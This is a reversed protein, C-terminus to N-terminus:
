RKWIFALKILQWRTLKQTAADIVANNVREHINMSARILSALAKADGSCEMTICNESQRFVVFHERDSVLADIIDAMEAQRRDIMGRYYADVRM